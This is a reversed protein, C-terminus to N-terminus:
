GTTSTVAFVAFTSTMAILFCYPEKHVIYNLWLKAIALQMYCVVFLILKSFFTIASSFVLPVLVSRYFAQRKILINMGPYESLM